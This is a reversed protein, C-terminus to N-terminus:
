CQTAGDKIKIQTVVQDDKIQNAAQDDIGCERVINCDYLLHREGCTNLERLCM